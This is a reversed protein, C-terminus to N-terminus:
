HSSLQMLGDVLRVHEGVDDGEASTVENGASLLEYSAM